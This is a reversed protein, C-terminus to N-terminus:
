LRLCTIFQIIAVPMEKLYALIQGVGSVRLCLSSLHWNLRHTSLQQEDDITIQAVNLNLMSLSNSKDQQTKEGKLM